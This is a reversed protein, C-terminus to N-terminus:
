KKRKITLHVSEDHSEYLRKLVDTSDLVDPIEDANMDKHASGVAICGKLDSVYNAIHVLIGTRGHVNLIRFHPYPHLPSTAEKVMIYDGEPICSVSRKNDKWPLELTKCLLFDSGEGLYWSGPTSTDLYVREIVVRM